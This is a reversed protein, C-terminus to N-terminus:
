MALYGEFEAVNALGSELRPEGVGKSILHDRFDGLELGGNYYAAEM